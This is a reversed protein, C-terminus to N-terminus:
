KIVVHEGREVKVGEPLKEGKEWLAIIADKVVEYTTVPKMLGLPLTELEVSVTVKPKGGNRQLSVDYWDTAIERVKMKLMAQRLQETLWDIRAEHAKAKATVRAARAKISPIKLEYSRILSCYAQIKDEFAVELHDLKAQAIEDIVGDDPLDRLVELIAEPIQFLTM